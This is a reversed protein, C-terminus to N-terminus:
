PQYELTVVQFEGNDLPLVIQNAETWAIGTVSEWMQLDVGTAVEVTEGTELDQVVITSDQHTQADATIGYVVATGDPSLRPPAAVTMEAPADIEIPHIEGTERDYWGYTFFEGDIAIDGWLWYFSLMRGDPTAGTLVPPNSVPIAPDSDILEPLPQEPDVEYVGSVDRGGRLAFFGTEDPTWVMQTIVGVAEAVYALPEDTVLDQGRVVQGTELIVRSVSIQRQGNDDRPNLIRLFLIESGDESWAPWQDYIVFQGATDASKLDDVEDETLNTLSNSWVELVFVDSDLQHGNQSFAVQRSDPSWAISAEAVRSSEENCRREGTRVQWVCIQRDELDSVGAVWRGDPSIAPAYGEAEFATSDAVVWGSDQQFRTSQDRQRFAADTGQVAVMQFSLLAVMMLTMPRARRGFSHSFAIM